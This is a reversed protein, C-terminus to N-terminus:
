PVDVLHGSITVQVNCTGTANDRAAQITVNSSEDAYIRVAHTALYSEVSGFTGQNLSLRHIADTGNALTRVNIRIHQGLSVIAQATVTEIVLRKDPPVVTGTDQVFTTGDACTMLINAQFPQLAPNDAARFFGADTLNNLVKVGNSLPNLAVTGSVLVQNNVVTPVPQGPTNVVVVDKASGGQATSSDPSSIVLGLALFLLSAAALRTKLNRNMNTRWLNKM